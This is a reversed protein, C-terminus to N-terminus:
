VWLPNPRYELHSLQTVLSYISNRKKIMTLHLSYTKVLAEFEDEKGVIFQLRAKVKTDRYMMYGTFEVIDEGSQAKFYKWTNDSFFKSFTEGIPQNVYAKFHGNKVALVHENDKDSM